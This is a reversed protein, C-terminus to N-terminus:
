AYESGLEFLFIPEDSVEAWRDFGGGQEEKLRVITLLPLPAESYVHLGLEIKRFHPLPAVNKTRLHVPHREGTTNEVDYRSIKEWPVSGM